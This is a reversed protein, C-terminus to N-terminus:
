KLILYEVREPQVRIVKAFAPMRTVTVEAFNSGSAAAERHNITVSFLSPDLRKFEKMAVRCTLTVKDPFTRFLTRGNHTNSIPVQVDSETFREVSIEATISDQSLAVYPKSPPKVLRLTVLRSEKLNKLVLEEANVSYLTDLIPKIGYVTVSDPRLKLSDYLQFQAAFSLSLNAKIPVKKKYENLFTLKLTDPDVGILSNDQPLQDALDKLIRSTRVYGHFENGIRRMRMNSLDVTIINGSSRFMKGYLELGRARMILTVTTDEAYVLVKDDPLNHFEVKYKIPAEYVRSLKILGWMFFSIAMCVFFVSLRNQYRGKGTFRIKSLALLPQKM